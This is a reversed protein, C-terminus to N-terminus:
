FGIMSIKIFYVCTCNYEKKRDWRSYHKCSMKDISILNWKQWFPLFSIVFRLSIVGATVTSQSAERRWFLLLIIPAMCEMLQSQTTSTNTTINVCIYIYIYIIYTYPYIHLYLYLYLYIAIYIYLYIYICM